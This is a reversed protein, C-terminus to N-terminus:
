TPRDLGNGAPDASALGAAGESAARLRLEESSDPGGLPMGAPAVKMWAGSTLSTGAPCLRFLVGIKIVPTLSVGPKKAQNPSCTLATV